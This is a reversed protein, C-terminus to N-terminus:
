ERCEPWTTMASPVGSAASRTPRTRQFSGPVPTIRWASAPPILDRLIACALLPQIQRAHHLSVCSSEGSSCLSNRPGAAHATMRLQRCRWVGSCTRPFQYFLGRGGGDNRRFGSGLDYLAAVVRNARDRKTIQARVKTLTVIWLGPHCHFDPAISVLCRIGLSGGCHGVGKEGIKTGLQFVDLRVPQVLTLPDDGRLLEGLDIHPRIAILAMNDIEAGVVIEAEGVPRLQDLRRLRRQVTM